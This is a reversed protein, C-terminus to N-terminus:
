TTSSELGSWLAEAQWGLAVPTRPEQVSRMRWVSGLWAPLANCSSFLRITFLTGHTM